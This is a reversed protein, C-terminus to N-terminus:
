WPRPMPVRSTSCSAARAALWPISRKMPSTIASLAAIIWTNSPTPNSTARVDAPPSTSIVNGIVGVAPYADSTSRRSWVATTAESRGNKSACETATM